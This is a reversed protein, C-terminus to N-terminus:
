DVWVVRRSNKLQRNNEISLVTGSQESTNGACLMSIERGEEEMMYSHISKPYSCHRALHTYTHITGDMCRSSCRRRRTRRRGGERRQRQRQSRTRRRSSRWLHVRALYLNNPDDMAPGAPTKGGVANSVTRDVIIRFMVIMTAKTGDTNGPGNMKRM